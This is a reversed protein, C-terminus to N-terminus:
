KSLPQNSLVARIENLAEVAFGQDYFYLIEGKNNLLVVRANSINENGTFAQVQEGDDYITVVGQWLPKPIGSRMGNDIFTSFMQPFLGQITPVEYFKVRTDTVDLAILWRDIDFQSNQVYGILLLTLDDTFDNPITLSKKELTQGVVTPFIQGTINKNPYQTSCGTLLLLALFYSIIRM